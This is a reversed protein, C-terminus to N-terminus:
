NHRIQLMQFVETAVKANQPNTDPHWKLLQKWAAARQKEDAKKSIEDAEAARAETSTLQPVRRWDAGDESM